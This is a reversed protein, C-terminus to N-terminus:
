RQDQRRRDRGRPHRNGAGNWLGCRTSGTNTLVGQLALTGGNNTIGKMSAAAFEGGLDLIAGSGATITGANSWVGDLSATSGSGTVSISGGAANDFDDLPDITLSDGASVAISGSNTFNFSDILFSGGAVGATISGADAIVDSSGGCYEGIQASAGAQVISFHAGLNLTPTQGSTDNLELTDGGASGINVTAEDLTEGGTVILTAGSGTLSISGSGTGGSGTATLGGAVFLQASAATLSLTGEYKVGSLLGGDWAFAGGTASITGGDIQGGSNLDFKGATLTLSTGVTLASNDAITASADDVTLSGATQAGSVTVTYTGGMNIVATDAADPVTDGSWDAGDSFSGNGAGWSVDPM